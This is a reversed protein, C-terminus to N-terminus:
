TRLFASFSQSPQIEYSKYILGESYERRTGDENLNIQIIANGGNPDFVAVKTNLDGGTTLEYYDILARTDWWGGDIPDSAPSETKYELIYTMMYGEIYQAADDLIRTKQYDISTIMWRPPGLLPNNSDPWNDSNVNFLRDKIHSHLTEESGIEEFQTQRITQKPVKRMFPEDYQSGTPLRLEVQPDGGSRYEEWVVTEDMSYIYERLFPVGDKDAPVAIPYLESESIERRNGTTYEATLRFMLRNKENRVVRKAACYLWPQVQFDTDAKILTLVDENVRPIAWVSWGDSSTPTGDTTLELVQQETIQDPMLEEGPDDDYARIEWTVLQSNQISKPGLSGMTGATRETEKIEFALAM